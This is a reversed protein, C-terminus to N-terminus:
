FPNQYNPDGTTIAVLRKIIFYSISYSTLIILLGIVSNILTKKAKSVQEQNGGATMWRYGAMTILVVMLIALITLVINLVKLIQIRIDEPEGSEGFVSSGIEDLGTQSERLSADAAVFNPSVFVVTPLILFFTIIILSLLHKKVRKM